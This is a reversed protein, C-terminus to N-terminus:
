INVLVDEGEIKTEFVKVGVPMFPSKGTTVDFQWGHWPCIVNGNDLMGEGLPGGRHPCTNDMAHFTGDVNFLAIRLGNAEVTKGHGPKVDGTKAVKVFM